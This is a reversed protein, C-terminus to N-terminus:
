RERPVGLRDNEQIRRVQEALSLLRRICDSFTERKQRELELATYVGPDVRITQAM